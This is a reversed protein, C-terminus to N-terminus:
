IFSFILSIYEKNGKITTIGHPKTANLIYADKEETIVKTTQDIIFAGDIPRQLIINTRINTDKHIPLYGNEKLCCIYCENKYLRLKSDNVKYIKNLLNKIIVEEFNRENFKYVYNKVGFCFLKTPQLNAWTLLSLHEQDDLFQKILM